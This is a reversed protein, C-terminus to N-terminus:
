DCTCLLSRCRWFMNLSVTWQKRRGRVGSGAGAAAWLVAVLNNTVHLLVSPAIGNTVFLLSYASGSIWALLIQASIMHAKVAQYDVTANVQLTTILGVDAVVSDEAGAVAAPQATLLNGAHIAGWMCTSVVCGFRADGGARQMVVLMVAYRFMLEEVIPNWIVAAPSGCRLAQAM